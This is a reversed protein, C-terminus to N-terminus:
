LGMEIHDQLSGPNYCKWWREGLRANSFDLQLSGHRSMVATNQPRLLVDRVDPPVWLLPMSDSNTVWRSWRDLAWNRAKEEDVSGAPRFCPSTARDYELNWVRITCDSSGSAIHRADPSFAITSIEGTHGDLPRAILQGTSTDWICIMQDKSGSAIRTGDPSYAVITVEDTHGILPEGIVSRSKVDWIRIARDSSGSAIYAGGPSVTLSNISSTHGDFPHTLVRIQLDWICIQSRALRGASSSDYNTSLAVYDKDSSYAFSSIWGESINIPLRTMRKTQAHWICICDESASIIHEGNPSYTLLKIVHTHGEPLEGVSQETRADCVHLRYCYASESAAEAKYCSRSAAVIEAGDPSYAVLIVESMRMLPLKKTMFGTQSDWIYLQNRSSSAIHAGDPSWAIGTICSTHGEIPKQVGPKIYSDWTYLTANLAAIIYSGDPSYAATVNHPSYAPRPKFHELPQGVM